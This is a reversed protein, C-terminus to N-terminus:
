GEALDEPLEFREVGEMGEYRELDLCDDSDPDAWINPDNTTEPNLRGNEGLLRDLTTMFYKFDNYRENTFRVLRRETANNGAVFLVHPYYDGEEIGEEELKDTIADIREARQEHQRIRKKILWSPHM